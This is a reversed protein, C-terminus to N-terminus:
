AYMWVFDFQRRAPGTPRTVVVNLAIWGLPGPFSATVTVSAAVGDDVLWVLAAQAYEQALALTQDSAVARSLLWLKSGIIDGAIPAYADGWWGRRDAGPQPLVDDPDARADTFLSIVIATYMGDDAIFDGAAVGIDFSLDGQVALLAIDTM